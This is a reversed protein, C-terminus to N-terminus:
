PSTAGDDLASSLGFSIRRTRPTIDIASPAAPNPLPLIALSGSCATADSRVSSV